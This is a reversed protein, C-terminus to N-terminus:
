FMSKTFNVDKTHAQTEKKLAAEVQEVAREIEVELGPLKLKEALVRGSWMRLLMIETEKTSEGHDAPVATGEASQSSKGTESTSTAPGKVLLPEAETIKSSSTTEDGAMQRRIIDVVKKNEGATPEIATMMAQQTQHLLGATYLSDLMPMPKPVLLSENIAAELHRSGGLARWHSYARFALYLFPFNPLIPILGVPASIPMLSISWVLRNKHLKQRETSLRRLVDVLSEKQLGQYMAPYSVDIKSHFEGPPLKRRAPISKLGWEEFPIRRLAKNGYEITKKKWTTESTEWEAWTKAAKDVGWDLYTQKEKPVIHSAPEAYILARRTSIPLLILRM